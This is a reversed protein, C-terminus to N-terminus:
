LGELPADPSPLIGAAAASAEFEAVALGFKSAVAADTQIVVSTLTSAAGWLENTGITRVDGVNFNSQVTSVYRRDVVGRNHAIVNRTAIYDVVRPLQEDRVVIPIGRGSCWDRIANFGQYSLGNVRKDIVDSLLDEMREFKLVEELSLSKTSSALTAPQKKLVERILDTVYKQFNDVIRTLLMEVFLQQHKRFYQTRPGPNKNALEAASDTVERGDILNSLEFLNHDITLVTNAIFGAFLLERELAAYYAKGANTLQKPPPPLHPAHPM